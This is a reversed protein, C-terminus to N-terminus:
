YQRLFVKYNARFIHDKLLAEPARAYGLNELYDEEPHYLSMFLDQPESDDRFVVLIGEKITLADLAVCGARFKTKSTPLPNKGQDSLHLRQLAPSAGKEGSFMYLTQDKVALRPTKVLLQTDYTAFSQSTASYKFCKACPLGDKTEGGVIYINGDHEVISPSCLSITGPEHAVRPLWQNYGNDYQYIFSSLQNHRPQEIGGITYLSGLSLVVGFRYKANKFELIPSIIQSKFNYASVKKNGFLYMVDDRVICDQLHYNILFRHTTWNISDVIQVDHGGFDVVRFAIRLQSLRAKKCVLKKRIIDEIALKSREYDPTDKFLDQLLAIRSDLASPAITEPHIRSILSEAYQLREMPDHILWEWIVDVLHREEGIGGRYEPKALADRLVDYSVESVDKGLPFTSVYENVFKWLAQEAVKDLKFYEALQYAKSVSAMQRWHSEFYDRCKKFLLDVCFMDAALLIDDINDNTLDVEQGYLFDLVVEFTERDVGRLEFDNGETLPSDFLKVFYQSSVKLLLRHVDYRHGEVRLVADTFVKDTRDNKLRNM